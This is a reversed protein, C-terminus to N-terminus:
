LTGGGRGERSLPPSFGNSDVLALPGGSERRRPAPQLASTTEGALPSPARLMRHLISSGDQVSKLGSNKIVVALWQARRARPSRHDPAGCELHDETRNSAIGPLKEAGTGFQVSKATCSTWNPGARSVVLSLAEAVSVTWLRRGTVAGARFLDYQLVVDPRYGSL